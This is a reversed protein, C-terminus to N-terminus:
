PEDKEDENQKGPMRQLLEVLSNGRLSGRTDAGLGSPHAGLGPTGTGLGLGAAGLGPAGLGPYPRPSLANRVIDFSIVFFSQLNAIDGRLSEVDRSLTALAQQAPESSQELTIM